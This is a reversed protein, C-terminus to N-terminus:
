NNIRMVDTGIVTGGNAVLTLVVTSNALIAGSSIGARISNVLEQRDFKIVLEPIGNGNTDQTADDGSFGATSPVPNGGPVRLQISNVETPILLPVSSGELYATVSNAGGKSKLNLTQPDLRFTVNSVTVIATCEGVNGALDRAIVTVSMAGDLRTRTDFSVSLPSTTSSGVLQGDVRIEILALDPDSVEALIPIVGSVTSGNTPTVLTKDPATNDVLVTIEITAENGAVDVARATLTLPGDLRSTTDEAGLRIDSSIGVPLPDYVVSADVTPPTGAARM